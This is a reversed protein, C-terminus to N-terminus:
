LTNKGDTKEIFINDRNRVEEMRALLDVLAM